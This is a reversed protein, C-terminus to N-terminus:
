GRTMGPRTGPMWAKSFCICCLRPHGPCARGHRRKHAFQAVAFNPQFTLKLTSESEGSSPETCDLASTGM